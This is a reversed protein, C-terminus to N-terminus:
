ERYGRADGSVARRRHSVMHLANSYRRSVRVVTNRFAGNPLPLVEESNHRALVQVKFFDEDQTFLTPPKLRQLLPLGTIKFGATLSKSGSRAFFSEGSSSSCGSITASTKM